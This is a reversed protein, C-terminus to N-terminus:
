VYPVCAGVFTNTKNMSRNADQGSYVFSSTAPDITITEAFVGGGAPSEGQRTLLVGAPARGISFESPAELTQTAGTFVVVEARDGRLTIRWTSLNKERSVYAYEVWNGSSVDLRYGASAVQDSTCLFVQGDLEQGKFPTERAYSQPAQAPQTVLSSAALFVLLVTKSM